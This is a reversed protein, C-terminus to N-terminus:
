NLPDMRDHSRAIVYDKCYMAEEKKMTMKTNRSDSGEANQVKMVKCVYFVCCLNLVPMFSVFSCFLKGPRSSGFMELNCLYLIALCKKM